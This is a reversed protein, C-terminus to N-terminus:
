RNKQSEIFTNLLYNRALNIHKCRRAEGQNKCLRYIWHNCTCSDDALNVTYGDKDSEVKWRM